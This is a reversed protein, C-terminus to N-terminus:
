AIEMYQLTKLKLNISVNNKTDCNCDATHLRPRKERSLTVFSQIHNFSIGMDTVAKIVAQSLTKHNCQKMM